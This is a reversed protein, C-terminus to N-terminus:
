MSMGMETQRNTDPMCAGTLAATVSKHQMLWGGDVTIVLQSLCCPADVMGQLKAHLTGQFAIHSPM